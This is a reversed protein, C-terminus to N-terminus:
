ALRRIVIGGAILAVGVAVMPLVPLGTRPLTGDSPTTTTTASTSQSASSSPAPTAPAPTATTQTTSAQKKPKSPTNGLPDQYQNDGASDAFAAAPLALLLCITAIAAARARFM